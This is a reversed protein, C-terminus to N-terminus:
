NGCDKEFKNTNVNYKYSLKGTIGEKLDIKINIKEIDTM